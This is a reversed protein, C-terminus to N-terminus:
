LGQEGTSKKKNEFEAVAQARFAPDTLFAHAVTAMAAAAELTSRRGLESNAAAVVELSHGPIQREAIKFHPHIGPVRHSFNGFDTSGRGHQSPVAVQHGLSEMALKYRDNFISNPLRPKTSKVSLDLTHTCGTMLCAGEIMRELRARMELAENYDVSRVCFNAATRDPIINPRDGGHTIVGHVRTGEPLQQRWLGIASFLLTMADLANVGKHPASGAHAAKGHFEVGISVRALCGSDVATRYTPHVMMAADVDDLCGFEELYVKGSSGEEGPTGLVVIKGAEGTSEMLQKLSHAAALAATCILNHGCAHGLGPLADYESAIAFTPGEAGWEARFATDLGGYPAEVEFGWRRLMEVQRKAAYHEKFDMEPNEWVDTALQLYEDKNALILNHLTQTIDPRSSM